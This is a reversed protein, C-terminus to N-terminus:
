TMETMEVTGVGATLVEGPRVRFYEPVNEGLFVTTATGSFTVTSGAAASLCRVVTVYGGITFTGAAAISGSRSPYLYGAENTAM